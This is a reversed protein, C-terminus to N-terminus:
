VGIKVLDIDCYYVCNYQSFVSVVGIYESVLDIDCSSASDGGKHRQQLYTNFGCDVV